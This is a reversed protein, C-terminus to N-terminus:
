GSRVVAVGGFPVTRVRLVSGPRRPEGPPHEALELFDFGVRDVTGALPVGDTLVMRVPSRDRAVGRLVHRLSLTRAVRGEAGPLASWRGLGSVALVAGLPVLTEGGPPDSLLLWDAGVRDLRGRVPGVGACRAEIPHGEVTRLRDVLRLRSVEIRTREAVESGLEAGLLADVQSDLDAFLRSWRVM